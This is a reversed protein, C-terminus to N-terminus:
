IKFRNGTNCYIFAFVVLVVVFAIYAGGIWNIEYIGGIAISPTLIGIPLLIKGMFRCLSKEDYTRKETQSMTNYGAILFAVKGLLLCIAMVIMILGLLSTIILGVIDNSTM